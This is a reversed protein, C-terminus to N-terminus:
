TRSPRSGRAPRDRLRQRTRDDAVDAAQMLPDILLQDRGGRRAHGLRAEGEDPRDLGVDRRELAARVDRQEALPRMGLQRAVHLAEVDADHRVPQGVVRRVDIRRLQVLVQHHANRDHRRIEGSIRRKLASCPSM